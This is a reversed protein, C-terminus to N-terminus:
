DSCTLWRVTLGNLADRRERRTIKRHRSSMTELYDDFSAFGANHWHYQTDTRTLWQADAALQAEAEPVFTAHVSSIGRQEAFAEAAGLLATRAASGSALLKPAPVPTFP